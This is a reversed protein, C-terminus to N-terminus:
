QPSRPVEAAGALATVQRRLLVPEPVWRLQQLPVRKGRVPIGEARLLQSAEPYVQDAVTGSSQVVRWWPVESGYLALTRAVRRATCPYGLLTALGSLDAYSALNGAPILRVIDLVIEDLRSPLSM